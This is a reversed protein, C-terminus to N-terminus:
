RTRRGSSGARSSAADRRVTLGPTAEASALARGAPGAAGLQETSGTRERTAAFTVLHNASGGAATADSECPHGRQPPRAVSGEGPGGSGAPVTGDGRCGVTPAPNAGPEVLVPEAKGARGRAAPPAPTTRLTPGERGRHVAGAGRLGAPRSASIDAVVRFGQRIRRSTASGTPMSPRGPRPDPVGAGRGPVPHFIGDSGRGMSRPGTSRRDGRRM